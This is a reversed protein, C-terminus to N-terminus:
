VQLKQHLLRRGKEMFGPFCAQQYVFARLYVVPVILEVVALLFLDTSSLVLIFCKM